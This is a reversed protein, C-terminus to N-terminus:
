KMMREIDSHKVRIQIMLIVNFLGVTLLNIRYFIM